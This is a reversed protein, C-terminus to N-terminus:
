DIQLTKYCQSSCQKMVSSTDGKCSTVRFSMGTLRAMDSMDGIDPSVIVDPSVFTDKGLGPQVGWTLHSDDCQLLWPLQTSKHVRFSHLQWGPNTPGCHELCVIAWKLPGDNRWNPPWASIVSIESHIDVVLSDPIINYVTLIAHSQQRIRIHERIDTVQMNISILLFVWFTCPIVNKTHM